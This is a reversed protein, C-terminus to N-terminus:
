IEERKSDWAAFQMQQAFLVWFMGVALSSFFVVWLRISMSGTTFIERTMEHITYWISVVCFDALGIWVFIHFLINFVLWKERQTKCWSAVWKVITKYFKEM